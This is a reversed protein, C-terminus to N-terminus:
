ALGITFHNTLPLVHVISALLLNSVNAPPRRVNWPLEASEPLLDDAGIDRADRDRDIELNSPLLSSTSGRSQDSDRSKRFPSRAPSDHAQKAVGAGTRRGAHGEAVKQQKASPKEARESAASKPPLALAGSEGGAGDGGGGDDDGVFLNFLGQFM